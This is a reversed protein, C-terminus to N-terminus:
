SPLDNSPADNMEAACRRAESDEAAALGAGGKVDQVDIVGARTRAANM